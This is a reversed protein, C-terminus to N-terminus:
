FNWSIGGTLTHKTYKYEISNSLTGNTYVRYDEIVNQNMYRIVFQYKKRAPFYLSGSFKQESRGPFNAIVYGASEVFNKMDGTLYQGYFHFPGMQMGGSIGFTNYGFGNEPDNKFYVRPTIYFNSNSFPYYTLWASLQTFSENSINALNIEAGSAFNGFNTWISTSFIFDSYNYNSDYYYKASNSSEGGLMLDSKGWVASLSPSVNLKKGILFYPNLFYQYQNIKIPFTNLAGWFIEEDRNVGIHTFNHTLNFGPSIRHSLDFSEFSYNKLYFAEGYNEGVGAKESLSSNKLQDLEPNFCFGGELAMRTIKSPVFGIKKKINNTFETALKIAESPRGSFVLSYYLYEQLWEMSKDNEWAKLLWKTSTRYRKLNYYAIGTRAQLYFFDIGQARVETAYDILEAWKQEQFLEYSKADVEVFNLKEQASAMYLILFLIGTLGFRKSM